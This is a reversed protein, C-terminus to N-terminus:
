PSNRRVTSNARREVQLPVSYSVLTRQENDRIFVVVDGDALAHEYQRTLSKQSRQSLETRFEKFPYAYVRQEQVDFLMVPKQSAYQRYLM